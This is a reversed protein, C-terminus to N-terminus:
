VGKLLYVGGYNRVTRTNAILWQVSKGSPDASQIDGTVIYYSGPPTATLAEVTSAELLPASYYYGLPGKIYGPVVVV